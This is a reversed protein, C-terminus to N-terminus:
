MVAKASSSACLGVGDPPPSLLMPKCPRSHLYDSIAVQRIRCEPLSGIINRGSAITREVIGTRTEPRRCSRRRMTQGRFRPKARLDQPAGYSVRLAPPRRGDSEPEVQSKQSLLILPWDAWGQEHRGALSARRALRASNSGQRRDRSLRRHLSYSSHGARADWRDSWPPREGSLRPAAARRRRNSRRCRGGRASEGAEIHKFIADRDALAHQAWVLRVISGASQAAGRRATWCFAGRGRRRRPGASTRWRRASRRGFGRTM